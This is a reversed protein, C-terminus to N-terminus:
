SGEKLKSIFTFGDTSLAGAGGSLFNNFATVMDVPKLVEGEEQVM